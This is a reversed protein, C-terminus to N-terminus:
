IPDSIELKSAMVKPDDTLHKLIARDLDTLEKNCRISGDSEVVVTLELRYKYDASEFNANEYRERKFLSEFQPFYYWFTQPDNKALWKLIVIHCDPAFRYTYGTSGRSPVTIVYDHNFLYNILQDNTKTTLIYWLQPETVGLKEAIEGISVYNYNQCKCQM